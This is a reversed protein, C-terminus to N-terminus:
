TPLKCSSDGYSDIGDMSPSASQFHGDEECVVKGGIMRGSKLSGVRGHHGFGLSLMSSLSGVRNNKSLFDMSFSRGMKNARGYKPQVNELVTPDHEAILQIANRAAKMEAIRRSVGSGETTIETEPDLQVTVQITYIKQLDQRVENTLM